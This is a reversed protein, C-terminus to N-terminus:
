TKDAAKAPAPGDLSRALDALATAVANRVLDQVAAALEHGAEGSLEQHLTERILARLAAPESSPAATEPADDPTVPAPAAETMARPAPDDEDDLTTWPTPLTRFGHLWDPSDACAAPLDCERWSPSASRLDPCPALMTTAADPDAAEPAPHAAEAHIRQSDALRLPPTDASIPLPDDAAEPGIAAPHRQRRTGLLRRRQAGSRPFPAQPVPDQALLRRITALVDGDPTPDTAPPSLDNM